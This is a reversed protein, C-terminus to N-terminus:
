QRRSLEYSFFRQLLLFSMPLNPSCYIHKTYKAKFVRTPFISLIVYSRQYSIAENFVVILFKSLFSMLSFLDIHYAM